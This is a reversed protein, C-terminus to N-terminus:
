QSVFGRLSNEALHEMMAPTRKLEQADGLPVINGLKDAAYLKDVTKPLTAAYTLGIVALAAVGLAGFCAKKWSERSVLLSSYREDWSACGTRYGGGKEETAQPM